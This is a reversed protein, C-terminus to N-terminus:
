PICYLETNRIRRHFSPRMRPFRVVMHRYARVWRGGCRIRRIKMLRVNVRFTRWSGEACSPVCRRARLEGRGSASAGGWSRWRLKYVYLGADGCAIIIRRPRRRPKVCDRPAYVPRPLVRGARGQFCVKAGTATTCRLGGPYSGREARDWEPDWEAAATSASALSLAAALGGFLLRRSLRRRLM